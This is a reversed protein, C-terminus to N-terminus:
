KKTKSRQKPQPTDAVNIALLSVTKKRSEQPLHTMDIMVTRNVLSSTTVVAQQERSQSRSGYNSKWPIPQRPDIVEANEFCFFPFYCVIRGDPRKEAKILLRRQAWIAGVLSAVSFSGIGGILILQDTMETLRNLFFPTFGSALSFQVAAGCSIAKYKWVGRSEFIVESDSLVSSIGSSKQWFSLTRRM